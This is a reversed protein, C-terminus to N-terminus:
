FLSATQLWCVCIQLFRGNPKKTWQPFPDDLILIQRAHYCTRALALRAQQGGSLRIGGSGVSTAAGQPMKCIEDALCVTKLCRAIEGKEGLRLIKKL